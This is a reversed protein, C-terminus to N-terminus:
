RSRMLAKVSMRPVNVTPYKAKQYAHGADSLNQAADELAQHAKTLDSDTAHWNTTVVLWRQKESTLAANANHLDRALKDWNPETKM